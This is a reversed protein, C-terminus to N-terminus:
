KSLKKVIRELEEGSYYEIQITGRNGKDSIKVKTGMASSMKKEIDAFALELNLDVKKEKKPKKPKEKVLAETARVSLDGSVVARAIESQKKKTDCSLIVKAHGFSIKGDELLDVVDKPLTLIRLSNAVSSRSKGM